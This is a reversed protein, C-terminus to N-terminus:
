SKGKLRAIEEELEPLATFLDQVLGYDALQPQM